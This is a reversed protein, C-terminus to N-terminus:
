PQAIQDLCCYNVVYGDGNPIKVILLTPAMSDFGCIMKFVQGSELHVVPAGLDISKWPLDLQEKVSHGHTSHAEKGACRIMKLDLAAARPHDLTTIHKPNAQVWRDFLMSTKPMLHAKSRPAVGMIYWM